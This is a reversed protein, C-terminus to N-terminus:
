TPTGNLWREYTSRINVQHRLRGPTKLAAEYGAAFALAGFDVVDRRLEDQLADVDM